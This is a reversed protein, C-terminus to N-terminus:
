LLLQFLLPILPLILLNKNIKIYDSIEDSGIKLLPLNEGEIFKKRDGKLEAM